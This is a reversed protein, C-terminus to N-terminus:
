KEFVNGAGDVAIGLRHYITENINPQESLQLQGELIQRKDNLEQGIHDTCLEGALRTSVYAMRDDFIDKVSIREDTCVSLTQLFQFTKPGSAALRNAFETDGCLRYLQVQVASDELRKSISNAVCNPGSFKYAEDAGSSFEGCLFKGILVKKEPAINCVPESQTSGLLGFSAVSVFLFAVLRM